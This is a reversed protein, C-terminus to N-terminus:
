GRQQGVPCRGIGKFRKGSARKKPKRTERKGGGDDAALVGARQWYLPPGAEGETHNLADAIPSIELEEAGHRLLYLYM